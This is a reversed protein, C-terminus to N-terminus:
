LGAVPSVEGPGDTGDSPSAEPLIEIMEDQGAGLPPRPVHEPVEQQELARLAAAEADVEAIADNIEELLGNTREYDIDPQVDHYEFATYRDIFERREEMKRAFIRRFDAEDRIIHPTLFILLNRKTTQKNKRRFLRGLVPIDGLVPVKDTGQVTSDTVLGGLIVTREDGVIIKTKAIRQGIVPNLPNSADFVESVEVEIDMRVKNSQNIHPTIALKLGVNQRSVSVNPFLSPAVSQRDSDGTASSLLSSLSSAGSMGTQIPVSQGVNIEAPEHDLALIHPTSLVNVDSSNQLAQVVVGFSPLSFGVSNESGEIAPGQIGLALGQLLSADVLSLSSLQSGEGIPYSTRAVGVSTKKSGNVMTDINRGGHWSVGGQRMGIASIEMIVAEVFVQRREVDLEDIVQKLSLYDRASGTIVLSNTGKDATIQVEGELLGAASAAPGEKSPAKGGRKPGSTKALATLTATVAEADANQLKHVRVEGDGGDVPTDIVGLLEIVQLYARETAAIILQNTRPEPIILLQEDVGRDDGDTEVRPGAQKGAGKARDRPATRAPSTKASERDFVQQIVDATDAASAFHVPEVWVQTGVGEVDLEQAIRLMRRINGSFDTIILTNTPPYAVLAGEETRFHELVAAMDAASVFSLRHLRTILRDGEPCGEGDLCVPGPQSTADETTVLKLFQGAPVVTMGNAALVSLFAQYAEPPSVPAPSFLSAKLARVKAPIIFRKGTALSISRTLEQLEVDTFNLNVRAGPGAAVYAPGLSDDVEVQTLKVPGTAQPRGAAGAGEEAPREAGRAAVAPGPAPAVEQAAQEGHAPAPWLCRLALAAGFAVVSQLTTKRGAGHEITRGHKL